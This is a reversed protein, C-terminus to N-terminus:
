KWYAEWMKFAYEVPPIAFLLLMSSSVIVALLKLWDRTEKTM